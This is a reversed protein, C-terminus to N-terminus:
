IKLMMISQDSPPRPGSLGTTVHRVTFSPSVPHFEDPLVLKGLIVPVAQQRTGLLVFGQDLTKQQSGGVLWWKLNEVHKSSIGYTCVCTEHTYNMQGPGGKRTGDSKQGNKEHRNGNGPTIHEKTKRKVKPRSSEMHPSKKHRLQTSEEIHTRDVEM